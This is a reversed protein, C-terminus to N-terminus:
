KLSVTVMPPLATLFWCSPRAVLDTRGVPIMPKPKAALTAALTSYGVMRSLM